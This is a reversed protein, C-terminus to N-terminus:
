KESVIQMIQELVMLATLSHVGHGTRFATANRWDHAYYTTMHVRDAGLGRGPITEAILDFDWLPVDYDAAIRRIIQNNINSAGEFRDAKTGMIPIVGNEISFEVIRRLNRDVSEPIGADNSGLRVFLLSPNHVRFECELMHEGGICAPNTAWMPDLVSWTHLGVRVAASDRGFSGSYYDIVPQLYGYAGLNYSGAQDFRALFHPNEITSDGLKSFARGNRGLTQGNAYIARINAQAEPSIVIFTEPSMGNVSTQRPPLTPTYTPIYRRAQTSLMAAIFPTTTAELMPGENAITSKGPILLAQGVYITNANPMQNASVLVDTTVGYRQAIRYLTEGRQVIHLDANANNAAPAPNTVTNFVPVTPFPSNTPTASLTPTPTPFATVTQTATHSITQQASVPTGPVTIVILGPTDTSSAAMGVITIQTDISPQTIRSSIGVTILLALLLGSGILTNRRPIVM